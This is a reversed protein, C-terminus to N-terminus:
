YHLVKRDKTTGYADVFTQLRTHGQPKMKGSLLCRIFNNKPSSIWCSQLLMYSQHPLTIFISYKTCHSLVFIAKIFTSEREVQIGGREGEFRSVPSAAVCERLSSGGINHCALGLLIVETLAEVWPGLSECTTLFKM